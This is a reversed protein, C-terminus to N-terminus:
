RANVGPLNNSDKSKGASSPPANRSGALLNQSGSPWRQGMVLSDSLFM